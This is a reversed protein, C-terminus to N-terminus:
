GCQKSKHLGVRNGKLGPLPATVLLLQQLWLLNVTTVTGQGHSCMEQHLNHGTRHKIAIRPTSRYPAHCDTMESKAATLLSDGSSHQM